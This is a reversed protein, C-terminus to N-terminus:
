DIWDSGELVWKISQQPSHELPPMTGDMSYIGEVAVMINSYRRGATRLISELEEMDNHKFRKRMGAESLFSGVFMSKHCKEDMIVMWDNQIIAPFALVNAGFGTSTLHCCDNGFFAAISRSLEGRLEQVDRAGCHPLQNLCRRQLAEYEVPMKYLGAYNFSGGNVCSDQQGLSDILGIRGLGATIVVRDNLGYWRYFPDVVYHSFRANASLAKFQQVGDQSRVWIESSAFLMYERLKALTGVRNPCTERRLKKVVSINWDKQKESLDSIKSKSRKRDEERDQITFM